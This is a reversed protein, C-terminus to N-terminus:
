TQIQKNHDLFLANLNYKISWVLFCKELITQNLSWNKLCEINWESPIISQMQNQLDGLEHEDM